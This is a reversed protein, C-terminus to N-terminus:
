IDEDFDLIQAEHGCAEVFRILDSPSIATTAENTLPHANVPDQALLAKDLVFTVRCDPDNILALPTVAGPQVGLAEDLLEAAGFSLNGRAGIRHRLSKLDVDRDELVTVLWLDRKKDRLFLNKIHGGPLEGRLAQSEKVTRLPPHRYTTAEIGLEDLRALLGEPDTHAM